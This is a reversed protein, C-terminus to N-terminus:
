FGALYGGGAWRVAGVSSSIGTFNALVSRLTMMTQAATPRTDAAAAHVGIGAPPPAAAASEPSRWTSPVPVGPTALQRDKVGNPKVLGWPWGSPYSTSMALSSALSMPTLSSTTSVVDDLRIGFRCVLLTSTTNQLKVRVM